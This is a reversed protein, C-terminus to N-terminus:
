FRFRPGDSSSPAPSSDMGVEMRLKRFQAKDKEQQLRAEMEDWHQRPMQTMLHAFWKPDGSRIIISAASWSQDAGEIWVPAGRDVLADIVAKYKERAEQQGRAVDSSRSFKQLAFPLPELWNTYLVADSVKLSPNQSLVWEFLELGGMRGAPFSEHKTLNAIAFILARSSSLPLFTDIGEAYFPLLKDLM